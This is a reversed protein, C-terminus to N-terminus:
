QTARLGELAASCRTDVGSRWALCATIGYGRMHLSQLRELYSVEEQAGVM